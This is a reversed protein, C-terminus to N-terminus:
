LGAWISVSPSPLPSAQSTQGPSAVFVQLITSESPSPTASGSSLQGLVDFASWASASPSPTPSTQSLQTFVLFGKCPSLSPSPTPFRQSLQIFVAFGAWTSVSLSPMPSRQSEPSTTGGQSISAGLVPQETALKSPFVPKTWIEALKGKSNLTFPLTAPLTDTTM